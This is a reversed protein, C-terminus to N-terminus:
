RKASSKSSVQGPQFDAAASAGAGVFVAAKHEIFAKTLEPPIAMVIRLIRAGVTDSTRRSYPACEVLELVLSCSTRHSDLSEAM